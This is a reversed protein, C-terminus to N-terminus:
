DYTWEADPTTVTLKKKAITLTGYSYIIAYNSSVDKGNEDDIMVTITNEYTGADIKSAYSTIITKHGSVLADDDYLLDTNILPAGDYTKSDDKTIINIPRKDVSLTGWEFSVGYNETVDKGEADLIKFGIMKNQLTGANVIKTWADVSISHGEALGQESTVTYEAKEREVADYVIGTMDATRISIERELVTLYGIEETIKYYKSVDEGIGNLIKYDATNRIYGEDTISREFTAEIVDRFALTGSSIKYESCSLPTGDYIKTADAVKITIPRQTTVIPAASFNLSYNSTVDKGEGDVIVASVVRAESREANYEFDAFYISDDYMLDAKLEPNQGYVVTGSIVNIDVPSPIITFTKIDGYRYGITAKALPRVDYTGVNRPFEKTWEGKGTPSYEYEVDSLFAKAKYELIEGYLIEEDYDKASVTVIGKTALLTVATTMIISACIIIKPLHRFVLKFFREIKKIKLEYNDYQM